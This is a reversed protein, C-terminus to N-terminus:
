KRWYVSQNDIQILSAQIGHERRFDTVAAECPPSFYDDVIIFGGNSVKNYLNTLSDMTSEYLDGDLRLISLKEIPATPLTDKFWGKLFRVNEDLLDYKRFNNQVEELSVRLYDITHIWNLLRDNPYKEENVTPLGQFSDALWVKRNAIGHVKLFGRMFICSGGRWVGTEIFDGEVNDKLVTEMCMQLNDMRVRGIMSHAIKPWIEGMRHKEPDVTTHNFQFNHLDLSLSQEYEQWIEFLITKKLLELYM